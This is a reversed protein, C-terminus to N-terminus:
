RGTMAKVAQAARKAISARKADQSRSRDQKPKPQTTTKNKM